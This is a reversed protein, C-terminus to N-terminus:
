LVYMLVGLEQTLLPKCISNKCFYLKSLQFIKPIITIKYTNCLKICCESSFGSHKQCAYYYMSKIKPTESLKLSAQDVCFVWSLWILVSLSQSFFIEHALILITIIDYHIVSNILLLIDGYLLHSFHDLTFSFLAQFM